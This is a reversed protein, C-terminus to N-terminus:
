ALGRKFAKTMRAQRAQRAKRRKRNEFCIGCQAHHARKPRYERGCACTRTTSGKRKYVDGARM